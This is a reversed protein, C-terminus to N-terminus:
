NNENKEVETEEGTMQDTAEQEGDKIDPITKPNIEDLIKQLNGVHNKEDKIIDDIVPIFKKFEEHESLQNVIDQYKQVTAWEDNLADIIANSYANDEVEKSPSEETVAIEEASVAPLTMDEIVIEKTTKGANSHLNIDKVLDDFKKFDEEDAIADGSVTFTSYNLNEDDQRDVISLKSNEIFSVVEDAKFTPVAIIVKKQIGENIKDDKKDIEALLETDDFVEEDEDRKADYQLYEDVREDLDEKFEGTVKKYDSFRVKRPPIAMVDVEERDKFDKIADKVTSFKDTTYLYNKDGYLRIKKEKAESINDEFLSEDLIM